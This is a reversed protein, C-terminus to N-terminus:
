NTEDQNSLNIVSSIRKKIYGTQKNYSFVFLIALGPLISYKVFVLFNPSCKVLHAGIAAVCLISLMSLMTRYTNNSESLLEIKPDEKAARIYNQYDTFKIFGSKILLPEIAISGFRSIVLGVFYYLFLGNIISDQLLPIALYRDAVVCFVAGPFLYNFINYSSLKELIKEM